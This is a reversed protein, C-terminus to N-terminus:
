GAKPKGNANRGRQRRVEGLLNYMADVSYDDYEQRLVVRVFHQVAKCEDLTFGKEPDEDQMYLFLREMWRPLDGPKVGPPFSVSPEPTHTRAQVAAASRVDRREPLETLAPDQIVASIAGDAIEYAVEIATIMPGSFNSRRAGEIDSIVRYEIKKEECFVRRNRYRPDLNIRRKILLDGLHQWAPGLRPQDGM